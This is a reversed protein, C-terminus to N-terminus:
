DHFEIGKVGMHVCIKGLAYATATDVWDLVKDMIDLYTGAALYFLTPILMVIAMVVTILASIVRYRIDHVSESSITVYQM